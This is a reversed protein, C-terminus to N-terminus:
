PNLAIEGRAAYTQIRTWEGYVRARSVPHDPWTEREVVVDGYRAPITWAHLETSPLWRRLTRLCRGSHHAKAFFTLVEPERGQPCLLDLSLRADEGTHRSRDQVLIRGPDVGRNVLEDRMTHAIPQGNKFYLAGILGAVVAQDYRNDLLAEAMGDWDGQATGFVFLTECPRPDHPAFVTETIAAVEEPSLDPTEVQRAIELSAEYDAFTKPLEDAM